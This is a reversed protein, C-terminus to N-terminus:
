RARRRALRRERRLRGPEASAAAVARSEIERLAVDNGQQEYRVLAEEFERLRELFDGLVEPTVSAACVGYGERELYRANMLQEFQGRLPVALMPKGLYVAESMLSFGGGAIVARATRLDEVFAENSHPRFDLNGERGEHGDERMGYIHCNAESERLADLLEEEGSSYVLLHDGREPDAAVIEPRVIPPVLTTGGRALPPFFFTTVVYEVAGYVMSRTVTCAILYDERHDGIIEEDHRCRYLMSMNDIAVFPVRKFRAYAAALPEFDTVVVDPHWDHVMTMWHQLSDPMEYRANRVNQAVTAWRQIQGEEMAFTPGFIEEVRPLRESLYTFAGGSSVVRVDHRKLLEEIVVRSRTAHGMGEGNVGYLIRV